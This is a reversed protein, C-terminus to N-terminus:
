MIGLPIMILIIINRKIEESFINISGLILIIYILSIGLLILLLFLQMSITKHNYYIYSCILAILFLYGSGLYVAKYMDIEENNRTIFKSQNPFYIIFSYIFILFFGLLLYLLYNFKRSIFTHKIIKVYMLGKIFAFISYIFILFFFIKTANTLDENIMVKLFSSREKISEINDKNTILNLICVFTKFIGFLIYIIGLLLTFLYKYM